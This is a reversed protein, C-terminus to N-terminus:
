DLSDWKNNIKQSNEPYFFNSLIKINSKNNMLFVSSCSINKEGSKFGFFPIEFYGREILLKAGNRYWESNDLILQAPLYDDSFEILKKIFKTRKGAFDILLWDEKKFKFSCDYIKELSTFNLSVNNNLKPKLIEYWDKNTEFSQVKKFIKSLWITSNGSGLEVLENNSLDLTKLFDLLPWTLLPLQERGDKIQHIDSNSFFSRNNLENLIFLGKDPSKSIQVKLSNIIDELDNIKKKTIALNKLADLYDTKIRIAEEFSKMAKEYENLSLYIIGLNNFAISNNPDLSIVEKYINEAIKLNQNKHHLVAENLKKTINADEKNM